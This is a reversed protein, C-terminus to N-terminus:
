IFKKVWKPDKCERLFNAVSKKFVPHIYDGAIEALPILVFKREQILPHPIRLDNSDLVLDDYFLIDIDMTRSQYGESSKRRGHENEIEQIRYLVERPTLLTHAKIVQNLFFQEDSFGWPETSYVSSVSFINGIKETIREKAKELYAMRDGRNTGLGMYIIKYEMYKILHCLYPYEFSNVIM